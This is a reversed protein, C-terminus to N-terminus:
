ELWTSSCCSSCSSPFVRMFTVYSMIHSNAASLALASRLVLDISLYMVVMKSQTRRCDRWNLTHLSVLLRPRNCTSRRTFFDRGCWANHKRGSESARFAGSDLRVGARTVKHSSVPQRMSAIEAMLFISSSSLKSIRTSVGGSFCWGVSCSAVRMRHIHLAYRHPVFHMVHEQSIGVVGM